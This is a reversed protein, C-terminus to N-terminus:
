RGFSPVLRIGRALSEARILRLAQARRLGLVATAPEGERRAPSLSLLPAATVAVYARGQPSGAMPESAVIVDVRDVPGAAALASAGAITLEVPRRGGGLRREPAPRAPSRFLELALYAGPSLRARPALGILAEPASLAGQPAFRTPVRVVALREQALQPTIARGAPLPKRAVLVPRLPGLSELARERYGSTISAGILGAAAALGFFLAARLRGSM